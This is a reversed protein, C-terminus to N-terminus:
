QTQRAHDTSLRLLARESNLVGGEEFSYKEALAGRQLSCVCGRPQVAGAGATDGGLLTEGAM